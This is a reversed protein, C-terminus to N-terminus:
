QESVSIRASVMALQRVLQRVLIVAIALVDAPVDKVDAADVMVHELVHGVAPDLVLLAVLAVLRVADQAHVQVVAVDRAGQMVLAKAGQRVDAAVITIVSRSVPVQVHNAGAPVLVLVDLSADEADAVDWVLDLVDLKVLQQVIVPKERGTLVLDPVVQVVIMGALLDAGRADM